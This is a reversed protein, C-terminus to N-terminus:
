RETGRDNAGAREGLRPGSLCDQQRVVSIGPDGRDARAGELKSIKAGGSSRASRVDHVIGGQAESADSVGGHGVVDAANAVDDQAHGTQLGGGLPIGDGGEGAVVGERTGDGDVGTTQPDEIDGCQARTRFIDVHVVARISSGM